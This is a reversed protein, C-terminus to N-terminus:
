RTARPGSASQLALGGSSERPESPEGGAVAAASAGTLQQREEETIPRVEVVVLADKDLGAVFEPTVLVKASLFPSDPTQVELEAV